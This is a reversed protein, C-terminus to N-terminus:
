EINGHLRIVDFELLPLIGLQGPEVIEIRDRLPEAKGTNKLPSTGIISIPM